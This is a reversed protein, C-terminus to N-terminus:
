APSYSASSSDTEWVSVKTVPFGGKSVYNYILKALFEATPHEDVVMLREGAEQLLPLVPDNKHLLMNHDLTENIWQGAFQKIDAFDCVMGQENLQESELTIEVRASHGHLHRCKGPHNMLRHGYCFSLNKTIRYM